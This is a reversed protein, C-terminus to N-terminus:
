AALTWRSNAMCWGEFQSKADTNEEYWERTADKEQETLPVGLAIKAKALPVMHDKSLKKNGWLLVNGLATPDVLLPADADGGGYPSRLTLSDNKGSVV